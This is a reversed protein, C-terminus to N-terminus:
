WRKCKMKGNGIRETVHRVSVKSVVGAEAYYNENISASYIDSESESFFLLLRYCTIGNVGYRLFHTLTYLNFFVWGLWVFCMFM